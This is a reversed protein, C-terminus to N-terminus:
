MDFISGLLVWSAVYFIIQKSTSFAIRILRETLVYLLREWFMSPACRLSFSGRVRNWRSLLQTDEEEPDDHVPSMLSPSSPGDSVGEFCDSLYFFAQTLSMNTKNWLIARMVGLLLSVIVVFCIFPKRSLCGHSWKKSESVSLESLQIVNCGDGDFSASVSFPEGTRRPLRQKLPVILKKSSQYQRFCLYTDDPLREGQPIQWVVRVQFPVVRSLDDKLKLRRGLFLSM